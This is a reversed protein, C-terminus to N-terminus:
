LDDIGLAGDGGGAIGGVRWVNGVLYIMEQVDRSPFGLLILSMVM